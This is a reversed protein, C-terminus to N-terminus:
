QVVNGLEQLEFLLVAAAVGSETQEAPQPAADIRSAGVVVAEEQEVAVQLVM